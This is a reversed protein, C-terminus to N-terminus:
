HQSVGGGYIYIYIHAKCLLLTGQLAAFRPPQGRGTVTGGLIRWVIPEPNLTEAKYTGLGLGLRLGPVRFGMGSVWIEM